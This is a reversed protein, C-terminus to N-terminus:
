EWRAAWVCSDRTKILWLIMMLDKSTLQNSQMACADIDDSRREDESCVLSVVPEQTLPKAFLNRVSANKLVLAECHEDLNLTRNDFQGYLGHHISMTDHAMVQNFLWPDSSNAAVVAWLYTVM